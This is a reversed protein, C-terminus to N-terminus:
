DKSSIRIAHILDKLSSENDGTQNVELRETLKGFGNDTLWETSRVDGLRSKKVHALIIIQLQNLKVDMKTIPNVTDEELALMELISKKINLSNKPRGKGMKNGKQFPKLNQENAMIRM